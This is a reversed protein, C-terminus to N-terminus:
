FLLIDDSSICHKIGKDHFESIHHDMISKYGKTILNSSICIEIVTGRRKVEELEEQTYYSFHGIREPNLSLIEKTEPMQGVVEGTHISMGLGMERGKQFLPIFESFTRSTPNGSFDLGVINRKWNSVKQIDQLLTSYISYDKIDRNLSVILKVKM